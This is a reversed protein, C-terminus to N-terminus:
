RTAGLAAVLDRLPQFHPVAAYAPGTAARVRALREDDATIIDQAQALAATLQPSDLTREIGQRHFGAALVADVLKETLPRMNQGLIRTQVKDPFNSANFLVAGIARDLAAYDDVVRRADDEAQASDSRETDSM